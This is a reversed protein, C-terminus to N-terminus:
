RIPRYGPRRHLWGSRISCDTGSSLSTPTRQRLRYRVPGTVPRGHEPKASHSHSSPIFSQHYRARCSDRTLFLTDTHLKRPSFSPDPLHRPPRTVAPPWICRRLSNWGGSGLPTPYIGCKCRRRIRQDKRRNRRRRARCWRHSSNSKQPAGIGPRPRPTCPRVRCRTAATSTPLGSYLSYFPWATVLSKRSDEDVLCRLRCFPDCADHRNGASPRM